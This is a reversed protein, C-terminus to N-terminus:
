YELKGSILHLGYETDGFEDDPGDSGFLDADDDEEHGENANGASEGFPDDNAPTTSQRSDSRSQQRSAGGRGPRRVADEDSSSM